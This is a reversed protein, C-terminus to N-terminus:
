TCDARVKHAKILKRNVPTDIESIPQGIYNVVAGYLSEGAPAQMLEYEKRTIPGATDDLVKTSVAAAAAAAAAVAYRAAPQLLCPAGNFAAAHQMVNALLLQHWDVAAAASSRAWVGACETVILTITVPEAFGLL